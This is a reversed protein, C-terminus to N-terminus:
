LVTTKSQVWFGSDHSRASVESVSETRLQASSANQPRLSRSAEWGATTRVHQSREPNRQTREPHGARVPRVAARGPSRRRVPRVAACGRSRRRVPWPPCCPPCCPSCGRPAPRSQPRLPCGRPGRPRSQPPPSPPCGRPRSQPSPSPPCGRLRLQPTPSPPCGRPAPRSQPPLCPACGRPRSQCRRRVSYDLYVVARGPHTHDAAHDQSQHRPCWVGKCIKKGVM